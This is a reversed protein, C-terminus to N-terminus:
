WLRFFCFWYSFFWPKWLVSYEGCYHFGYVTVSTMSWQKETIPITPSYNISRLGCRHVNAETKGFESFQYGNNCMNIQLQKDRIKQKTQWKSDKKKIKLLMQKLVGLVKMSFSKLFKLPNVSLICRIQM